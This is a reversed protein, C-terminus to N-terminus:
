GFIWSWFRKLKAWLTAWFSDKPPPVRLTYAASPHRATASCSGRDNVLGTNEGGSLLPLFHAIFFDSAYRRTLRLSSCWSGSQPRGLKEAYYLRCREEIWRDFRAESLVANLKRYFPHGPSTPLETTCVWLGQQEQARKGLAM